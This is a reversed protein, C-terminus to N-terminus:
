LQHLFENFLEEESEHEDLYHLLDFFVTDDEDEDDDEIPMGHYLMNYCKSNRNEFHEYPRDYNLITNCLWCFPTNCRWCKMKNCGDM